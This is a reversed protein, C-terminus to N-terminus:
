SLKFVFEKSPLPPAKLRVIVATVEAQLTREILAIEPETCASSTGTALRGLSRIKKIAQNMRSEMLARSKPNKEVM